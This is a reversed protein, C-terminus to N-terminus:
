DTFSAISAALDIMPQQNNKIFGASPRDLDIILFIVLSILFGMVLIPLRRRQSDVASAYGAFGGAVAAIVFLTILVINPVRNRLASLRKGQDDIMENLSAIFLGTPILGRDKSAVAKAQQWLAEQLANSRNIINRSEALSTNQRVIDLRIEVYEQLLKLTEARHPDPLLRARLATTGIANAENLLADRRAESRTLAMSFTFALMLALLGLMASELTAINSGGEGKNRIGLQWGAESTVLIVALGIFFVASIPYNSLDFVTTFNERQTPLVKGLAILL